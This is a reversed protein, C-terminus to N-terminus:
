SNSHSGGIFQLYHHKHVRGCEHRATYVNHEGYSEGCYIHSYRRGTVLYLQGGGCCKIDRQQRQLYKPEIRFYFTVTLYEGTRYHQFRQQLIRHSWERHLFQHDDSLGSGHKRNRDSGLLLFYCGNRDIHRM